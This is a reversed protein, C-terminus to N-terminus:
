KSKILTIQKTSLQGTKRWGCGGRRCRCVTKVKETNEEKGSNMSKEFLQKQSRSLKKKKEISLTREIM